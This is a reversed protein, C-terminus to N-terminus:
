DGVVTNAFLEKWKESPIHSEIENEIAKLDEEYDKPYSFYFNAYTCDGDDDEDYIYNKNERLHSNWPGDINEDNKEDYYERNGGGTRTHVVIRGHSIFCDRFRPIDEINIDLIHLLLPAANNVGFLMNYLSM